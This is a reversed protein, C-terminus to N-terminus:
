EIKEGRFQLGKFGPQNMFDLMMSHEETRMGQVSRATEGNGYAYEVLAFVPVHYQRLRGGDDQYVGMLGPPAPIIQVIEAGQGNMDGPIYQYPNEFMERLEMMGAKADNYCGERQMLLIGDLKVICDEYFDTM